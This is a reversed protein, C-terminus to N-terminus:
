YRALLPAASDFKYNVGLTITQDRDKIGGSSGFDSYRYEARATWNQSFAYEAGAGLTWGIKSLSTSAPASAGSYDIKANHYTGGGLGYLLFDDIIYGLRGVLSGRYNDTFNGTIVGGSLLGSKKLDTYDGSIELGALYTNLFVMNYGGQLGLDFGAPSLSITEPDVPTGSVSGFAYGVHAGAYFGEWSFANAPVTQPSTRTFSPALPASKRAPLDSAFAASTAALAAVASSIYKFM